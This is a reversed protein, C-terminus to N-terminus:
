KTAKKEDTRLVCRKEKEEERKACCGKGRGEFRM